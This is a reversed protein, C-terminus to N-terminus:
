VIELETDPHVWRNVQYIGRGDSTELRALKVQEGPTDDYYVVADYVARGGRIRVRHGGDSDFGILEWATRRVGTCLAHDQNPASCTM